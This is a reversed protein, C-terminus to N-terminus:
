LDFFFSMQCFWPQRKKYTIVLPHKALPFYVFEVTGDTKTNLLTSGSDEWRILVNEDPLGYGNKGVSVIAYQPSMAQIFANSSASDSGHHGVKVVDPFLLYKRLINNEINIGADGMFLWTDSGITGYLVLSNDNEDSNDNNASIVTLMLGDRGIVDGEKVIMLLGDFAAPPDSGTVIAGIEVVDTIDSIEGYHDDHNHTIVLYDIYRINRDLLYGILADYSDPPGTDILIRCKPDDVLIADGQGVDFIMVKTLITTPFSIFALLMSFLVFYTMRKRENQFNACFLFFALFFLTVYFEGAIGLTIWTDISAFWHTLQEFFTALWVYAKAVFPFALTLFSAPLM